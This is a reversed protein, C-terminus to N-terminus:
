RSDLDLSYLPALNVDEARYCEKVIFLLWDEGYTEYITRIFARQKERDSPPAGVMEEMFGPWDMPYGETFLQSLFKVVWQRSINSRASIARILKAEPRGKYADATVIEQIAVLSYKKRKALFYPHMMRTSGCKCSYRPVIIKCFDEGNADKIKRERSSRYAMDKGCRLCKVHETDLDMPEFEYLMGNRFKPACKMVSDATIM